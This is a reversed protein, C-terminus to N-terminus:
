KQKEHEHSKQKVEHIHRNKKLSNIICICGKLWTGEHMYKQPSTKNLSIYTYKLKYLVYM